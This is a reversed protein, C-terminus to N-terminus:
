STIHTLAENLQPLFEEVIEKMNFKPVSSIVAAYSTGATPTPIEVKKRAEFYSTIEKAEINQIAERKYIPCNKSQFSHNCNKFTIPDVCPLGEHPKRVCVCVAEEECR